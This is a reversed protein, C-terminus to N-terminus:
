CSVTGTQPWNARWGGPERNRASSVFLGTVALEFAEPQGERRLQVAELQSTGRLATVHTAPWVLTMLISHRLLFTRLILDSLGPEQAM